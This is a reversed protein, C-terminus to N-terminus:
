KLALLIEEAHVNQAQLEAEAPSPHSQYMSSSGAVKVQWLFYRHGYKHFVLATTTAPTKAEVSNFKAIMSVKAEPNALVLTDNIPTARQLTLQGTPIVKSGMVFDFPVNAKLKGSSPIQAAAMLPLLAMTLTLIRITYKM